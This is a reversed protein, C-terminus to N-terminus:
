YFMIASTPFPVFAIKLSNGWAELTAQWVDAFADPIINPINSLPFETKYPPPTSMKWFFRTKPDSPRGSVDLPRESPELKNIIDM